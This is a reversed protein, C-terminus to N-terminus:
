VQSATPRPRYALGRQAEIAQEFAKRTENDLTTTGAAANPTASAYDGQAQKAGALTQRHVSKHADAQAPPRMRNNTMFARMGIAVVALTIFSLAVYWEVLLVPLFRQVCDNLVVRHTPPQLYSTYTYLVCLMTFSLGRVYAAHNGEMSLAMFAHAAAFSATIFTLTISLLTHSQLPTTLRTAGGFLGVSSFDFIIFVCFAAWCLDVAIHTYVRGDGLSTRAVNVTLALLVSMACATADVIRPKWLHWELYLLATAVILTQTLPVDVLRMCHVFLLLALTESLARLGPIYTSALSLDVPADSAVDATPIDVCISMLNRRVSSGFQYINKHRQLSDRGQHVEM